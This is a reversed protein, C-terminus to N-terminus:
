DLLPVDALEPGPGRLLVAFPSRAPDTCRERLVTLAVAFWREDTRAFGSWADWLLVAGTGAGTGDVGGSPAPVDDLLDALADFNAGYTDPLDLARGIAVLFEQRSEVTVGDLHAFTWGVGEVRARVDDVDRHSAWRWVGPADHGALLGALGSM